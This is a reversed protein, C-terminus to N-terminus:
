RGASITEDGIPEHVQSEGDRLEGDDAHALRFKVFPICDIDLQNDHQVTGLIPSACRLEAMFNIGGEGVGLHDRPVGAFQERDPDVDRKSLSTSHRRSPASSIALSKM